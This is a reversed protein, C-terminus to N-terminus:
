SIIPINPIGVNNLTNIENGIEIQVFDIIVLVSIKFKFIIVTSIFYHLVLIIYQELFQVSIFFDHNM